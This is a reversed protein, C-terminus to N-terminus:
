EWRGPEAAQKKQGDAPASQKVLHIGVPLSIRGSRPILGGPGNPSAKWSDSPPSSSTSSVPTM